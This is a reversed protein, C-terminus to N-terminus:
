NTPTGSNSGIGAAHSHLHNNLHYDANQRMRLMKITRDVSHHVHVRMPQSAALVFEPRSMSHVNGTAHGRSHRQTKDSNTVAITRHIKDFM